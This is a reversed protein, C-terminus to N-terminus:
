SAAILWEQMIKAGASCGVRSAGADIFSRVAALTRIGGAAKVKIRGDSWRVLAAVDELKAGAPAFGTSTKVYAAGADVVLQTARQMTEMSLYCCEIIVKVPADEATKVIAAIEDSVTREDGALLPGLAIVMDLEAAGSHLLEEAEQIKTASRSYGCPFGVVSCVRVESGYLQSAALPVFAPPICVAPFGYEVAEECHLVIQEPTTTPALLTHEIFPAPNVM